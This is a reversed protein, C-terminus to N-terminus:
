RGPSTADPRCTWSVKSLRTSSCTEGDRLWRVNDSRGTEGTVEARWCTGDPDDDRGLVEGHDDPDFVVVDGPVLVGRELEVEISRVRRWFLLTWAGEEVGEVIPASKREVPLLLM